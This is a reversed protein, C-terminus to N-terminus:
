QQPKWQSESLPRKFSRANRFTTMTLVLHRSVSELKQLEVVCVQQRRRAARQGRRPKSGIRSSTSTEASPMSRQPRSSTGSTSLTLSTSWSRAELRVILVAKVTRRLDKKPFGAEFFTTPPSFLSPTSFPALVFFSVAAAALPHTATVCLKM